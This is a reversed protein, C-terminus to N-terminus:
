LTPSTSIQFSKTDEPARVAAEVFQILPHIIGRIRPSFCAESRKGPITPLLPATGSARPLFGADFSGLEQGRPTSQTLHCVRLHSQVVPYRPM